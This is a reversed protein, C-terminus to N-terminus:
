DESDDDESFSEEDDDDLNDNEDKQTDILFEEFSDELSNDDIFRLALELQSKLNWGQERSIESLIDKVTTM